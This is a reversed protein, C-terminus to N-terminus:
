YVLITVANPWFLDSKTNLSRARMLKSDLANVMKYSFFLLRRLFQGLISCTKVDRSGIYTASVFLAYHNKKKKM